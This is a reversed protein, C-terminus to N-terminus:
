PRPEKRPSSPPSGTHDPGAAANEPPAPFAGPEPHCTPCPRLLGGPEAPILCRSDGSCRGCWPPVARDDAWVPTMRRRHIDPIEYRARGPNPEPLGSCDNIQVHGRRPAGAARYRGPQRAALGGTGGVRPAPVAAAPRAPGSTYHRCAPMEDLRKIWLPGPLRISDLRGASLVARVRTLSWGQTLHADIRRALGVREDASLPRAHPLERARACLWAVLEVAEPRFMALEDALSAAERPDPDDAHPEDPHPDDPDAAPTSPVPSPTAARPVDATPHQASPSPERDDPAVRASGDGVADGLVDPVAADPVAPDPLHRAAAPCEHLRVTMVTRVRLHAQTGDAVDAPRRVRDVREWLGVRILEEAFRGITRASRGLLGAYEEFDVEACTRRGPDDGSDDCSSALSVCYLRFAGDSVVDEPLVAVAYPVPRHWAQARTGTVRPGDPPGGPAAGTVQETSLDSSQTGPPRSVTDSRRHERTVHM